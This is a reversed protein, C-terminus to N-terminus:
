DLFRKVENPLENDFDGLGLDYREQQYQKYLNDSESQIREYDEAELPLEGYSSIFREIEAKERNEVAYLQGVGRMKLLNAYTLYGILKEKNAARVTSSDEREPIIMNKNMMTVISNFSGYVIGKEALDYALDSAGRQIHRSVLVEIAIIDGAKSLARLQDDTYQENYHRRGETSFGIEKFWNDVILIEQPSRSEEVIQDNTSSDLLPLAIDADPDNAAVAGYIQNFHEQQKKAADKSALYYGTLISLVAISMCIFARLIRNPKYNRTMQEVVTAIDM